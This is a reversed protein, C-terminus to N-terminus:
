KNKGVLTLCCPYGRNGFLSVMSAAGFWEEILSSITDLAKSDRIEVNPLTQIQSKDDDMQREEKKLYRIIKGDNVYVRHQENTWGDVQGTSMVPNIASSNKYMVFILKDNKFYGEVYYSYMDFSGLANIEIKRLSGKERYLTVPVDGGEHLVNTDTDFRNLNKNM